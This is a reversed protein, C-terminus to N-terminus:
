LNTGAKVAATLMKKVVSASIDHFDLRDSNRMELPHLWYKAAVEKVAAEIRCHKEWEAFAASMSPFSERGYKQQEKLWAVFNAVPEGWKVTDPYFSLLSTIPIENM